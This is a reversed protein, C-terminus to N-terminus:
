RSPQNLSVSAFVRRLYEGVECVHSRDAIDRVRALGFEVLRNKEFETRNFLPNSKLVHDM